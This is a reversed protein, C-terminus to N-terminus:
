WPYRGLGRGISDPHVYADFFGGTPKREAVGFAVLRDGERVAVADTTFDAEAWDRRVDAETTEELVGRLRDLGSILAAIEGAEAMTPRLVLFPAPPEPIM